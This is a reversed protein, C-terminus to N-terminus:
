KSNHSVIIITNLFALLVLICYTFLKLICTDCPLTELIHMSVILPNYRAFFSKIQFNAFIGIM